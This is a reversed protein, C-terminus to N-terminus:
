IPGYTVEPHFYSGDGSDNEVWYMKEGYFDFIYNNPDYKLYTSSSRSNSVKESGSDYSESVNSDNVTNKSINSVNSLTNPNDEIDNNSLTVFAYSGVIGVSILLVVVTSILIKENSGSKVNSDNSKTLIESLKEGCNRCFKSNDDNEKGCIQCNKVL